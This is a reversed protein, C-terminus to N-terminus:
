RTPERSGPSCSSRQKPTTLLTAIKPLRNDLQDRVQDWTAALTTAEPEAFITRFVAAVM